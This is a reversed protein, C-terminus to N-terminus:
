PRRPPRELADPHHTLWSWAGRSVWVETSESAHWSVVTPVMLVLAALANAVNPEESGSIQNAPDDSIRVFTPDDRPHHHRSPEISRNVHGLPTHVHSVRHVVAGLTRRFDKLEVPAAGASRHVHAPGLTALVSVAMGQLPILGILLWLLARFRLLRSALVM